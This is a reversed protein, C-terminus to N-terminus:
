KWGRIERVIKRATPAGIGPIRVWDTEDSNALAHGTRFMREAEISLVAGVDDIESAWRRCLKPRMDLAPVQIKQTEILATHRSWKKQFYHYLEVIQIATQTVDLSYTVTVGSLSVSVLYRYLKSYLVQRSSRAKLPGWSAGNRYGQMLVGEYPEGRGCKWLGEIMLFNREYLQLMPVRQVVSYRSDDICSLMDHLTKREIGISIPGLKGNGEFAADACPLDTVECEVGLRRILPPLLENGDADVGSGKRYDIYIM